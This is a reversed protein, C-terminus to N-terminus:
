PKPERPELIRTGLDESNYIRPALTLLISTWVCVSFYVSMWLWEPRWADWHRTPERRVVADRLGEWFGLYRKGARQDDQWRGYYTPLYSGLQYPIVVIGQLILALSFAKATHSPSRDLRRCKGFLFVGCLAGVVYVATWFSEEFVEFLCSTTVVGTYSCAEGCISFAVIVCGAAKLVGPCANLQGSVHVMALAVQTMWTVEGVAALTRDIIISNLPTDFFTQRSNYVSPFVSRWACQLVLPVALWRLRVAYKMTAAGRPSAALPLLDAWLLCCVVINLVSIAVMSGWWVWTLETEVMM